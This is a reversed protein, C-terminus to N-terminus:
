QKKFVRALRSRSHAWDLAKTLGNRDAVRAKNRDTAKEREIDNLIGTIDHVKGLHHINDPFCNEMHRVVLDLQHRYM